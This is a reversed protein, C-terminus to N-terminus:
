RHTYGHTCRYKFGNLVCSICINNKGTCLLTIGKIKTNALKRFSPKLLVQAQNRVDALFKPSFALNMLLIRLRREVEFEM